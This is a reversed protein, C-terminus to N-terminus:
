GKLIYYEEAKEALRLWKEANITDGAKEFEEALTMCRQILPFESNNEM